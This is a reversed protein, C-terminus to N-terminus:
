RIHVGETAHAPIPQLPRLPGCTLTGDRGVDCVQVHTVIGAPAAPAPAPHREDARAIASASALLFAVAVLAKV